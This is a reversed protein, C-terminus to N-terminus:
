TMIIIWICRISAHWLNIFRYETWLARMIKYPFYNMKPVSYEDLEINVSSRNAKLSSCITQLVCNTWKLRSTLSKNSLSINTDDTFLVFHLINPTQCIMLM